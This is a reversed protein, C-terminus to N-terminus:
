QSHEDLVEFRPGEWSLHWVRDGSDLKPHLLSVRAARSRIGYIPLRLLTESTSARFLGSVNDIIRASWVPKDIGALTNNCSASASGSWFSSISQSSNGKEPSPKGHSPDNRTLDTTNQLAEEFWQLQCILRKSKVSFFSWQLTPGDFPCDHRAQMSPESEPSLWLM